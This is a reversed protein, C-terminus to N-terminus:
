SSFQWLRAYRVVDSGTVDSDKLKPLVNQLVNEVNKQNLKINYSGINAMYGLIYATPNKYEAHPIKKIRNLITDIEGDALSIVGGTTLANYVANVQLVFRDRPEMSIKNLKRQIDGFKGEIQAGQIEAIAQPVYVVREYAKAEAVHNEGIDDYDEMEGYEMEGRESDDDFNGYEGFNEDEDFYNRRSM